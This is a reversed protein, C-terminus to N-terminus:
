NLHQALFREIEDIMASVDEPSFEATKGHAASNRIAALHTIRKQMITNYVGAKTLDANMKDLKADPINNRDCLNRLCTEM